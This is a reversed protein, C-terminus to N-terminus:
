QAEAGDCLAAFNSILALYYAVGIPLAAEDFTFAASHNGGRTSAGPVGGGLRMFSGPVRELYYAFDDYALHPEAPVVAAPGVVLEAARRAVATMMADNILSPYGRRYDLRIDAGWACAVQRAVIELERHLLERVARDFTRVTGTITVESAIVNEASGGQITGISLV